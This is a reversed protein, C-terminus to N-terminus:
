IVSARHEDAPSVTPSPAIPAAHHWAMVMVCAFLCGGVARLASALATDHPLMGMEGLLYAWDHDGGGVLPLEQARADAVYRAVNWLSQAVWALVVYAAYRDGRRLFSAVFALPLLLQLLTGGLYGVFEGFPAFVLHGTEHIALDVGDILSWGEASRLHMVAWACLLVVIGRKARVLAAPSLRFPPPSPDPIVTSAPDRSGSTVHQLGGDRPADSYAASRRPPAVEYPDFGTDVRGAADLSFFDRSLAWTEM